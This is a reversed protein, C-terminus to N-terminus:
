RQDYARLMRQRQMTQLVERLHQLQPQVKEAVADYDCRIRSLLGHKRLLQAADLEEGPEIRRLLEVIASCEEELAPLAGWEERSAHALLRQSLVALREYCALVESEQQM